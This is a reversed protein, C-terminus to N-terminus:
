GPDPGGMLGPWPPAPPEVKQLHLNDDIQWRLDEDDTFQVMPQDARQRISRPDDAPIVYDFLFGYKFGPRILPWTTGPRPDFLTFEYRTGARDEMVGLRLPELKGPPQHREIWCTIDRIPRRSSNDLVLVTQEAPRTAGPPVIFVSAAPCWSFDVGDAQQRELQRTRSASDDQQIRLQRLAILAAVFAGAFLAWTPLDGLAIHFQDVSPASATFSILKTM